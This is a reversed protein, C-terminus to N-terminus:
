ARYLWHKIKAKTYDGPAVQMAKKDWYFTNAVDLGANTVGPANQAVPDSAAIGPAQDRYEVREQGGLPDTIEIWRNTGSQAM